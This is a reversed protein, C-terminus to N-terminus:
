VRWTVPCSLLVHNLSEDVFKCLICLTSTNANLVGIRLLFDVTKIKGKWALWGFFQVRPPIYKVWVRKSTRSYSGFGCALFKYVSEVTFRGSKSAEWVLTDESSSRLVPHVELFGILRTAEVSEWDYLERRSQFLWEGTDVKRKMMTSFAEGKNVVLRYLLPFEDKLSVNECWKDVWFKVRHGNGM